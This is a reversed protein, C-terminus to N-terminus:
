AGTYARGLCGDALTPLNLPAIRSSNRQASGTLRQLDTRAVV